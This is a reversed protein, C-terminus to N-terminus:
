KKENMKIDQKQIQEKLSVTSIDGANEGKKNTTRKLVEM